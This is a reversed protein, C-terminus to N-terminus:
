PMQLKAAAERKLMDYLIEAYAQQGNDNLHIDDRFPNRGHRIYDRLVDADQYV